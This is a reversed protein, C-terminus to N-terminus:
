PQLGVAHAIQRVFQVLGIKRILLVHDAILAPLAHLVSGVAHHLFPQEMLEKRFLMRVIAFDDTRVEINLGRLQLVHPIKELEIVGRVVRAQRNNPVEIRLLRALQHVLIKPWQLAALVHRLDFGVSRRNCRLTVHHNVIVDLKWANVHSPQGRRDELRAVGFRIKRGGNKASSFGAPQVFFKHIFLLDRLVHCHILLRQNKTRHKLHLRCCFGTHFGFIELFRDIRLQVRETFVSRCSCLERPRSVHDFRSDDGTELRQASESTDRVPQVAIVM